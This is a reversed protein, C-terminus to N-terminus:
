TRDLFARGGEQVAQALAFPRGEDSELLVHFQELGKGRVEGSPKSLWLQSLGASTTSAARRDSAM